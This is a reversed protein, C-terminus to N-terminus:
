SFRTLDPIAGSRGSVRAVKRDQPLEAPAPRVLSVRPLLVSIIYGKLANMLFVWYILM